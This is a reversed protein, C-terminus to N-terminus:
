GQKRRRILWYGVAFVALAPAGAGVMPGPAPLFGAVAPDTAVAVFLGAAASLRLMKIM